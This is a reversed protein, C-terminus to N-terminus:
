RPGSGPRRWPSRRAVLDGLAAELGLACGPRRADLARSGCRADRDVGVGARRDDRDAVRLHGPDAVGLAEAVVDLDLVRVAVRVRVPAQGLDGREVGRRLRLLDVRGLDLAISASGLGSALGFSAADSVSRGAERAVALTAAFAVAGGGGVRRRAGRGGRGGLRRDLLAQEGVRRARVRQGGAAGLLLEQARAADVAREGGGAREAQGAVLDDDLLELDARLHGGPVTSPRM